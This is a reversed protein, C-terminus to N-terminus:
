IAIEYSTSKVTDYTALESNIATQDSTDNTVMGVSASADALFGSSISDISSTDVNSAMPQSPAVAVPAPAVPAPAVPQEATPPVVAVPGNDVSTTPRFVMVLAIVAVIAVPIGILLVKNMTYSVISQYPSPIPAKELIHERLTEDTVAEKTREFSGPHPAVRALREKLQAEIKSENFEM